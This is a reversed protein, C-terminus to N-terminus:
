GCFYSPLNIISNNNHYQYGVIRFNEVQKSLMDLQNNDFFCYHGVSIQVGWENKHSKQIYCQSLPM